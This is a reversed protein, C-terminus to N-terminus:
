VGRDLFAGILELVRDPMEKYPVHGCNTLVVMEVAGGALERIMEPHRLSGYEDTDGHMVLVPCHIHPLVPALSWGAFDPHLWSEIWADIVWRTKDGHYKKLREIRDSGPGLTKQAAHIGAVTVDEVLAQAAMSIVGLCRSPYQPAASLVMGGGVSHGCLIFTDVGCATLVAALADRGETAIFDFALAGPHPDSRGFGLRDYAIVRRGTAAALAAPFDRWLDICGLSDHLLVIPPASDRGPWERVFVRGGTVTVFRDHVDPM